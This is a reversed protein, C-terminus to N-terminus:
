YYNENNTLECSKAYGDDEFEWIGDNFGIVKEKQVERFGDKFHCSLIKKGSQVDLLAEESKASAFSSLGIIAGLAFSTIILMKM